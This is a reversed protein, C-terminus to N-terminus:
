FQAEEKRQNCWLLSWFSRKTKKSIQAEVIPAAVQSELDHDSPEPMPPPPPLGQISGCAIGLDAFLPNLYSEPMHDRLGTPVKSLFSRYKEHAATEDVADNDAISARATTSLEDIPGEVDNADVSNLSDTSPLETLDPFENEDSPLNATVGNDNLVVTEGVHQFGLTSPPLRTVVDHGKVLRYLRVSHPYMEEYRETVIEAMRTGCARPSGATVSCFSHHTKSWDHQLLFYCSALTAIGAGLSHGTVFLKRPPQDPALLPEIYLKIDPLTALFNNYFGTHVRPKPGDCLGEFGSCYGSFGSEEDKEIEWVSSTCNFNTMWDFASTTCRYSLVIIEDNHAIYGQTDLFHGDATIGSVDIMKDLKLQLIHDRLIVSLPLHARETSGTIVRLAEIQWPNVKGIKTLTGEKDDTIALSALMMGNVADSVDVKAKGSSSETGEQMTGPSTSQPEIDSSDM